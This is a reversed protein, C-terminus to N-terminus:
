RYGVLMEAMWAMRWRANVLRPAASNGSNDSIGDFPDTLAAASAVTGGM